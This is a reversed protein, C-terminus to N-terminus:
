TRGLGKLGGEKRGRKEKGKEEASDYLLTQVKERKERMM